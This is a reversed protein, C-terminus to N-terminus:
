ALWTDLPTEILASVREIDTRYVQGLQRRIADPLPAISRSNLTRSVHRVTQVLWAPCAGAILNGVESEHVLRHLWPWRPRSSAINKKAIAAHEIPPLGLHNWIRSLVDRPNALLDEQLLVLLRERPYHSLWADLHRGYFGRERYFYGPWWGARRREEEADWADTFRAHPEVGLRRHHLFQSYARDVPHRLVAILKADPVYQSARRAALEDALYGPSADVGLQDANCAAYLARYASEDWISSDAPWSAGRFHPRNGDFSFFRPEKTRPLFIRPHHGLAHFLATTGAKPAGILLVRPLDLRSGM